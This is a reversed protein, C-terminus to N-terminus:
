FLENENGAVHKKLLEAQKQFRLILRDIRIFAIKVAEILRQVTGRPCCLPGRRPFTSFERVSLFGQANM